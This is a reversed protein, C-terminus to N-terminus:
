LVPLDGVQQLSIQPGDDNRVHVTKFGLERTPAIDLQYDDGVYVHEDADVRTFAREFFLKDPKSIGVDASLIIEEFVEKIGHYELKKHQVDRDGNTLIGIYARQQLAYLMEVTRDTITTAQREALAYAEAAKDPVVAVNHEAKVQEFGVEYSHRAPNDLSNFVGRKFTERAGPPPDAIVQEFLEKRTSDYRLITGDMDFWIATDM